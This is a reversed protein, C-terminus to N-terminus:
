DKCNTLEKLTKSIDEEKIKRGTIKELLEQTKQVNEKRRNDKIHNSLISVVAAMIIMVVIFVIM